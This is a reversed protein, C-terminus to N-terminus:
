SNRRQHQIIQEGEARQRVGFLGWPTWLIPSSGNLRTLHWGESYRKQSNFEPCGQSPQADLRRAGPRSARLWARPARGPHPHPTELCPTHRRSGRRAGPPRNQRSHIDASQLASPLTSPFLPPPCVPIEGGGSGAAWDRGETEAEAEGVPRPELRSSGM